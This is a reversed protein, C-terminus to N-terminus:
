YSDPTMGMLCFMNFFVGGGILGLVFSHGVLWCVGGAWLGVIIAKLKSSRKM